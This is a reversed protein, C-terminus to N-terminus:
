AQPANSLGGWAVRVNLQNYHPLDRTHPIIYCLCILLLGRATEGAAPGITL